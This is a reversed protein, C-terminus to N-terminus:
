DHCRSCAATLNHMSAKSHHYVVQIVRIRDRPIFGTRVAAQLTTTVLTIKYLDLLLGVNSVERRNGLTVCSSFSGGVKGPGEDM